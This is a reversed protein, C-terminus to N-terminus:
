PRTSGRTSARGASTTPAANSSSAPASAAMGPMPRANRGVKLSPARTMLATVSGPVLRSSDFASPLAM